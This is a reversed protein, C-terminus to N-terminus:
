LEREDETLINEKKEREALEQSYGSVIIGAPLAVVAIGLFASIMSVIQGIETVPYIDGFGVTTLSITAWYIAKFLNGFTQPEVQFVILASIFIYTLSLVGVTILQSKERKLVNTVLRINESYRFIKFVRFTRFLRLIRLVRFASNLNVISPLISLLDIIAMVQLPYTLYVRFSHKHKKCDATIWRLIYDVIFIFVTVKDMWVFVENQRVFCLPIISIIITIMMFIDYIKSLVDGDDAKEIIAYLRDLM